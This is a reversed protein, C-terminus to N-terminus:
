LAALFDKVPFDFFYITYAGFDSLFIAHPPPPIPLRVPSLIRRSYDWSPEIGERRVM